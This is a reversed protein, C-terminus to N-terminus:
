LAVALARARRAVRARRVHGGGGLRLADGLTLWADMALRTRTGQLQLARAARRCRALLQGDVHPGGGSSLSSRTVRHPRDTQLQLPRRRTSRQMRRQMSCQSCDTKPKLQLM